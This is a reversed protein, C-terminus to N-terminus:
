RTRRASERGILREANTAVRGDPMTVVRGGTPLKTTTRAEQYAHDLRSALSEFESPFLHGYRDLSVQVSSHGLHECVAKPGAGEAILLSAATHRLDHIRLEGSLGAEELAPRWVRRYFNSHRLPAGLAVERALHTALRDRLFAPLVVSRRQYTKTPGWHLVGGVEALSETVDLRSRLLDCRSRRLAVAEGWRLGGYGLLLVLTGYPAGTAEALRNLEGASLFRM